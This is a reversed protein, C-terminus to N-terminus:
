GCWPISNLQASAVFCDVVMTRTRKLHTDIQLRRPLCEMSHTDFGSSQIKREYERKTKNKTSQKEIPPLKRTLTKLKKTKVTSGVCVRVQSIWKINYLSFSQNYIYLIHITHTHEYMEIKYTFKPPHRWITFSSHIWSIHKWHTNNLSNKFLSHFFSSFRLM